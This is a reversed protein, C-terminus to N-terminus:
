NPLLPTIAVWNAKLRGQEKCQYLYKQICIYICLPLHVIPPVTAPTCYFTCHFDCIFHVQEKMDVASTDQSGTASVEKFLHILYHLPVTAPTCNSTCHCTYFLLYLPLWMYLHLHVQEKLDGAHNDQPETASVVQFLYILYPTCICYCQTDCTCHCTDCTCTCTCTYRCRWTVMGPTRLGLQVTLSYCTHWTLQVSVTANQIMPVTVSLFVTAHVPIYVPQSLHFHLHFRALLAAYWYRSWLCRHNLLYPLCWSSLPLCWSSVMVFSSLM